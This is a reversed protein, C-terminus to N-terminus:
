SASPDDFRLRREVVDRAVARVSRSEAFARARLLAFASQPTTALQAIIMGTAQHVERRTHAHVRGYHGEGDNDGEGLLRRLVVWSLADALALADNVTHQDLPGPREQYLDLAGVGIAGVRLPFAFVASAASGQMAEQFHPWAVDQERLLDPVLVPRGTDVAQWCPGEGLDFQLEDLREAVDDSACLTQQHLEGALLSVAAGSVPLVSLCASCLGDDSGTAAAAFIAAHPAPRPGSV